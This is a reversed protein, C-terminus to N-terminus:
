NESKNMWTPASVFWIITGAFALMKSSDLSINGTFVLFSPILTLALGIYSVFKILLRM